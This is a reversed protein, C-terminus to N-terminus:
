KGLLKSLKDLTGVPHCGGWVDRDTLDINYKEKVWKVAELRVPEKVTRCSVSFTKNGMDLWHAHPDTVFGMGYVSWKASRSARGTEASTFALFLKNGAKQAIGHSNYIQINHLMVKTIKM